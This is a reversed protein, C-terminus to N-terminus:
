FNTTERAGGCLVRGAKRFRSPLENKLDFLGNCWKEFSWFDLFTKQFYLKKVGLTTETFVM